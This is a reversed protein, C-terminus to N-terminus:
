KGRLERHYAELEEMYKPRVQENVRRGEQSKSTVFTKKSRNKSLSWDYTDKLDEEIPISNKAVHSKQKHQRELERVQEEIDDFHDNIPSYKFKNVATLDDAYVLFEEVFESQFEGELYMIWCEDSGDYRIFEFITGPYDEHIVKNGKSFMIQATKNINNYPNEKTVFIVPITVTIGVGTGVGSIIKLELQTPLSDGKIGVVEFVCKNRQNTATYRSNTAETPYVIDGIKFM